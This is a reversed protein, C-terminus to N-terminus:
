NAPKDSRAPKAPHCSSCLASDRVLTPKESAKALHRDLGAHCTGCDFKKHTPDAHFKPSPQAHCRLCSASEVAAHTPAMAALASLMLLVAMGHAPMRRYTPVAWM